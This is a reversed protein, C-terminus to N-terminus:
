AGVEEMTVASTGFRGVVVGAARNAMEVADRLRDGRDLAVAMAAIVTDGAGCVDFVERAVAPFAQPEQGTSFLLMGRPGLTVLLHEVALAQRLAEARAELGPGRGIIAALEAENPKLLWAGAYREFSRDDKPDVLIRCGHPKAVKILVDSADLVGKAYDSLVVVCGPRVESLMDQRIQRQVDVGVRGEFDCRVLHKARDVARLKLTTPIGAEGRLTACIGHRHLLARLQQGAMDDGIATFLRPDGGLTAVNLAVNAAGGLRDEERDVDLVPVPAEASLREVTGHWYRDLMSDGVVLIRSM